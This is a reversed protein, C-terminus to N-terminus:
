EGPGFDIVIKGKARGSESYDYAAQVDALQYTRDVMPKIEGTALLSGLHALMEGDPSMMVLEFSVGAAEATGDPLAGKISVLRGGPKLVSVSRELTEGGLLDFVVDFDSLEEDFRETRYDIVQDAGLATLTEASNASATTAVYAGIHKAIQIAITGVGGSGAHILVKEGAQLGANTVLSQWSTLGVLPISAAEVHTLNAPKLALDTAKVAVQEAITGAQMTNARAFVEDGVSFDNVDTGVALVVGSVDFGITWPLQLPLMDQLSGMRILSDIPNVSAARVDLIVSDALLVPNDVDSVVVDSGYTDVVAAKM